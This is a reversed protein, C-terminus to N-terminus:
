KMMLNRGILSLLVPDRSWRHGISSSVARHREGFSRDVVIKESPSCRNCEIDDDNAGAKTTERRGVIEPLCAM